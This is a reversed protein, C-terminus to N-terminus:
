CANIKGDAFPYDDIKHLEKNKYHDLGNAVSMGKCGDAEGYCDIIDQM